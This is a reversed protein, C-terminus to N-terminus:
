NMHRVFTWLCIGRLADWLKITKDRSGTAVFTIGMADLKATPGAEKQSCLSYFIVVDFVFRM